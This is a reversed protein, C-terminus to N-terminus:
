HVANCIPTDVEVQYVPSAKTEEEIMRLYVSIADRINERAEEFTEGQSHCGPFVPCHADYGYESQNIVVPYKM